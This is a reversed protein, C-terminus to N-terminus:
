GVSRDDYSYTTRRLYNLSSALVSIMSTDALSDFLLAEGGHLYPDLWNPRYRVLSSLYFILAYRALYSPFPLMKTAYLSPCYLADRHYEPAHEILPHFASWAAAAAHGSGLSAPYVQKSELFHLAPGVNSRPSMGLLQRWNSFRDIRKYSKLIHKTSIDPISKTADPWALIAVVSWMESRGANFAVITYMPWTKTKALGLEDIEEGVEPVQQLLRRIPLKTGAAIPVGTVLEYLLPFVGNQVTVFDSEHKAATAPNYSLGHGIKQGAISQPNASLLIAKALNLATYYHLLAASSGHLRQAAEDNLRAQRLYNRLLVWNQRKTTLTGSFLAQGIQPNEQVARFQLWVFERTLPEEFSRQPTSLPPTLLWSQIPRGPEMKLM